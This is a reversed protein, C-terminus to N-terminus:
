KKRRHISIHKGIFVEEIGIVKMKEIYDLAQKKTKHLCKEGIIYKKEIETIRDSTWQIKHIVTKDTKCETLYQIM